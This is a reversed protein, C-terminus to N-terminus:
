SSDRIPRKLFKSGGPVVVIKSSKALVAAMKSRRPTSLEDFIFHFALAFSASTRAELNKDLTFKPKPPRGLM